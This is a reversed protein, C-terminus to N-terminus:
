ATLNQQVSLLLSTCNFAVPLFLAGKEGGNVRQHQM